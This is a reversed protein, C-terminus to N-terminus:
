RPRSHNRRGTDPRRGPARRFAPWHFFDDGTHTVCVNEVGFAAGLQDEFIWQLLSALSDWIFGAARNGFTLSTSAYCQGDLYFAQLCQQSPRVAISRYASKFDRVIAVTMGAKILTAPADHVARVIDWLGRPTMNNISTKRKKETMDHVLRHKGTDKPVLGIPHIAVRTGPPVEVLTGANIYKQVHRRAEDLNEAV